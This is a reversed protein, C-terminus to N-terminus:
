IVSFGFKSQLMAATAAAGIGAPVAFAMSKLHTNRATKLVAKAKSDGQQRYRNYAGRADASIPANNKVVRAVLANNRRSLNEDTRNKRYANRAERHEAKTKLQAVRGRRYDNITNRVIFNNDHKQIKREIVGQKQRVRAATGIGAKRVRNGHADTYKRVGWKMGLVGHHALYDQDVM